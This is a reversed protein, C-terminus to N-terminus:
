PPLAVRYMMMLASGVDYGLPDIVILDPSSEIERAASSAGLGSGRRDALFARLDSAHLNLLAFRGIEEGRYRGLFDILRHATAVYARV